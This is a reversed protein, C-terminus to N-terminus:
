LLFLTRGATLSYFSISCLVDLDLGEDMGRICRDLCVLKTRTERASTRGVVRESKSRPRHSSFFQRAENLEAQKLLGDVRGRGGRFHYDVSSLGFPFVM